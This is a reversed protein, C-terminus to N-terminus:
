RGQHNDNNDDDLPISDKRSKISIDDNEKDIDEVLVNGSLVDSENFIIFLLYYDFNKISIGQEKNKM